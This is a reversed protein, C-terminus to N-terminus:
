KNEIKEMLKELLEVTNEDLKKSYWPNDKKYDEILKKIDWTDTLLTDTKTQNSSDQGIWTQSQTDWTTTELKQELIEGTNATDISEPNKDCWFIFLLSIGSAVILLKKM